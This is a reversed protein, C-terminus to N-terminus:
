QHASLLPMGAIFLIHVPGTVDELGSLRDVRKVNFSKIVSKVSPRM